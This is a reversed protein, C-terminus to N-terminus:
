ASSPPMCFIASFVKRSVGRLTSTDASSFARRTSFPKKLWLQRQGRVRETEGSRQPPVSLSRMISPNAPAPFMASASARPHASESCRGPRSATRRCRSPGPRCARRAFRPRPPRLRQLLERQAGVRDHERDLRVRELDHGLLEVALRARDGRHEARGRDVRRRSSNGPTGTSRVIGVTAVSIPSPTMQWAGSVGASPSTPARSSFRKPWSPWM